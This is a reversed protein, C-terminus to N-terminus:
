PTLIQGHATLQRRERREGLWFSIVMAVASTYLPWLALIQPTVSNKTETATVTDPQGNVIAAVTLFAVRGQSDTTQLAIQYIGAKAYVHPQRFEQNDARSVLNNKTDGWLINVAYPPVGGLINIPVSMEQGPFTGRYVADTIITMPAAGTDFSRIPGAVSATFDFYVTRKNSDPGAQNLADYVRAIFTNAGSLLDVSLTFKGKDDCITSGAFIDNRFIEVLTDAPCTGSIEIPSSTFHHDSDPVSIVAGTTPPKGPMTGTIGISGGAPLPRTWSLDGAHATYFSLIVGVSFLLVALLVYSTNEHPRRKGTHARESLKLWTAMLM